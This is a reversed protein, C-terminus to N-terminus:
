KKAVRKRGARSSVKVMQNTVPDWRYKSVVVKLGTTVIEGNDMQLVDMGKQLADNILKSSKRIYDPDSMPDENGEARAKSPLNKLLEKIQTM